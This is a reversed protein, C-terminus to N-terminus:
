TTAPSIYNSNTGLYTTLNNVASRKGNSSWTRKDCVSLVGCLLDRLGAMGTEGIPTLDIGDFFNAERQDCDPQHLLKRAAALATFATQDSKHLVATYADSSVVTSSSEFNSVYSMMVNLNHKSPLFIVPSTNLSVSTTALNQIIM